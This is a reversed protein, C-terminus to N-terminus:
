GESGETAKRIASEVMDRLEPTYQVSETHLCEQLAQLMCPAAAILHVISAVEDDTAIGRNTNKAVIITANGVQVARPNDEKVLWEIHKSMQEDRRSVTTVHAIRVSGARVTSAQRITPGCSKM